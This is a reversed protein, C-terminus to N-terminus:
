CLVLGTQSKSAETPPPVWLREQRGEGSCYRSLASGDPFLFCAAAKFWVRPRPNLHFSTAVSRHDEWRAVEPPAHEPSCSCTPSLLIGAPVFVVPKQHGGEGGLGGFHRQKILSLGVRAPHLTPSSSFSLRPFLVPYRM